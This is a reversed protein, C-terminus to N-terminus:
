SQGDAKRDDSEGTLFRIAMQKWPEVNLATAAVHAPNAYEDGALEGSM